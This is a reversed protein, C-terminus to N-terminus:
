ENIKKELNKATKEHNRKKEKTEPKKRLKKEFIKLFNGKSKLIKKGEKKFNIPNKKTM